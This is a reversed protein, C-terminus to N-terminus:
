KIRLRVSRALNGSTNTCLKYFSHCITCCTCAIDDEDDEIRSIGQTPHAIETGPGYPFHRRWFRRWIKPSLGCWLYTFYYCCPTITVLYRTITLCVNKEKKEYKRELWWSHHLLNVYANWMAFLILAASAINQFTLIDTYITNIVDEVDHSATENGTDTRNNTRSDTLNSPTTNYQIITTREFDCFTGYCSSVGNWCYYTTNTCTKIQGDNELQYCGPTRFKFFRIGCEKAFSIQTAYLYSSVPEEDEAETCATGNVHFCDTDSSECPQNIPGYKFCGFLMGTCAYHFGAVITGDVNYLATCDTVHDAPVSCNDYRKSPPLSQDNNIRGCFDYVPDCTDNFSINGNIIAADCQTSRPNQESNYSNYLYADCIAHSSPLVILVILLTLPM